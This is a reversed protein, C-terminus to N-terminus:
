IVIYPSGNLYRKQNARSIKAHGALCDVGPKVNNKSDSESDSDSINGILNEWTLKSSM